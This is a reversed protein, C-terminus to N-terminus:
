ERILYKSMDVKQRFFKQYELCDKDILLGESTYLSGDYRYNIILRSDFHRLKTHEKVWERDEEMRLIYLVQTGILYYFLYDCKTKLMCGVSKTEICSTTEYFIYDSIVKDTKIEVRATGKNNKWLLDIDNDRYCDADRVDIVDITNPHNKLYQIIIEEGKKGLEMSVNFDHIM